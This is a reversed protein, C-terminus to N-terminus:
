SLSELAHYSWMLPLFCLWISPILITTSLTDTSLTLSFSAPSLLCFTM